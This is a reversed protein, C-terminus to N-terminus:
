KREIEAALLEVLTEVLNGSGQNRAEFTRNLISKIGVGVAISELGTRNKLMSITQEVGTDDLAPSERLVGQLEYLDSVAPVEIMTGFDRLADLDKL